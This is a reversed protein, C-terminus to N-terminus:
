GNARTHIEMPIDTFVGNSEKLKTNNRFLHRGKHYRTMMNMDIVDIRLVTNPHIITAIMCNPDISIRILAIEASWNDQFFGIM